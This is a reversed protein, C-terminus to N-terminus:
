RLFLDPVPQKRLQVTGKGALENETWLEWLDPVPQQGAQEVGEAQERHGAVPQDDQCNDLYMRM